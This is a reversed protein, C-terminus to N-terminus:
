LRRYSTKQLNNNSEKRIDSESKDNIQKMYPVFEDNEM